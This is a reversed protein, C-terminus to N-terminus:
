PGYRRAMLNCRCRKHARQCMKEVFELSFYRMFYVRELIGQAISFATIRSM